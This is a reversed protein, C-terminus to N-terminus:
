DRAVVISEWATFTSCRDPVGRGISVNFDVENKTCPATATSSTNATRSEDPGADQMWYNHVRTDVAKSPLYTAFNIVMWSGRATKRADRDTQSWFISFAIM